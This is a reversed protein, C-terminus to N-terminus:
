KFHLQLDRKCFITEKIPSKQLLSRYNIVQLEFMCVQESLTCIYEHENYINIVLECPQVQIAAYVDYAYIHVSKCLNTFPLAIDCM